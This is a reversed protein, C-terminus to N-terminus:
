CLASPDTCSACRIERSNWSCYRNAIRCTAIESRLIEGSSTWQERLRHTYADIGHGKNLVAAVIRDIRVAANVVGHVDTDRQALERRLRIERAQQPAVCRDDSRLSM